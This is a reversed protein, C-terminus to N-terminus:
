FSIIILEYLSSLTSMFGIDNNGMILALVTAIAMGIMGYEIATAGTQDIIFQRIFSFM